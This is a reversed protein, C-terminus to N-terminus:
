DEAPIQLGAGSDLVPTYDGSEIAYIIPKGSYFYDYLKNPSVGYHYLPSKKAAIFLLDFMSLIKQIKEKPISNIICVNSLKNRAVLEKLENKGKGEGVLVFAIGPQDKLIKAAEFLSDLANSIGFTGAYGVIFKNTPLQSIVTESLEQKQSVEDISFGNPVWTFKASDMGRNTMHEVSNKLNSIVRDSDQYAKDEIWQLFRIFPHRLSYGGLCVLTMPWIDRVEFVLRARSYKNSLYKAGLFSILSPSSCLISDPKDPIVNVLGRVKWAFLFWNLIRKISHAHPYNPVKIWVFNFDDIPQIDYSKYVEPHKRMLHTYSAAILYVKYGLKALERSLYYHRGGMGTEPTSAYQNVIWI